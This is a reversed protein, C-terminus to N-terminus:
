NQKIRVCAMRYLLSDCQNCLIGRVCFLFSVFYIVNIVCLYCINRQISHEQYKRKSFFNWLKRQMSKGDHWISWLNPWVIEEDKNGKNQQVLGRSSWVSIMAICVQIQTFMEFLFFCYLNVSERSSDITGFQM